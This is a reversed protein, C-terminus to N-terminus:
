QKNFKQIFIQRGSQIKIIYTGTSLSSAKVPVKNMGVTTIIEDKLVVQGAMNTIIFTAKEPQDSPIDLYLIESVPNPYARFSLNKAENRVSRIASYSTSNDRDAMKLRYYHLGAPPNADTYSYNRVTSSHGAAAVQAIEIFKNGDTSHEVSYYDLNSEQSTSWALVHNDNVTHVDFNTLLVPLVKSKQRGSVELNFTAKPITGFYSAYRPKIVEDPKYFWMLDVNHGPGTALEWGVVSPVSFSLGIFITTYGPYVNNRDAAFTFLPHSPIGLDISTTVRDGPNASLNVSGLFVPPIAPFSDSGVSAPNFSTAYISVVSAPSAKARVISVKVGLLLISDTIPILSDPINVDDFIINPTGSKGIGPNYNYGNGANSKYLTQSSAQQFACAFLSILISSLFIKMHFIKNSDILNLLSHKITLHITM